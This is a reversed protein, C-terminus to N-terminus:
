GFLFAPMGNIFAAQPQSGEKCAKFGELYGQQRAEEAKEEAEEAAEETAKEVAEEIQEQMYEYTYLDECAAESGANYSDDLDAQTFMDSRAAEEAEEIEDEAVDAVSCSLDNCEILHRFFAIEQMLNFSIFTASLKDAVAEAEREAEAIQEAKVAEAAEREAKRKRETVARLAAERVDSYEPQDFPAPFVTNEDADVALIAALKAYHSDTAREALSTVTSTKGRTQILDVPQAGRGDWEAEWWGADLSSDLQNHAAISSHSNCPLHLIRGDATVIVSHFHCM